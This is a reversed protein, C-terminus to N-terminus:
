NEKELSWVAKPTSPTHSRHNEDVTLPYVFSHYDYAYKWDKEYLGVDVFYNGPDLDLAEIDVTVRGSGQLLPLEVNAKQTSTEFCSRGDEHLITVDFIPSAISQPARYVMEITLAIHSQRDDLDPRLIRVHEVTAEMSGFRTKGLVLPSDPDAFQSAGVPTLRVTENRVSTAYDDAITAAKGFASVQGDQLWLAQECMESVVSIDHSVVVISTGRARLKGIADLCKRQFALDGVALVEDVLLVDPECHIAVAFALRMQMGTSYTRMPFDIVKSLESFEVISDFRQRVERRTLGRVVGGVMVNERGTLDTHFGAALDLLGSIRGHLSISGEDPVGIGGLLRLLTSKGAGNRGIVGLMSGQEVTFNVNRLSWFYDTSRSKRFGSLIAEQLTWARNPDPRRYKKGLDRVIIADAM